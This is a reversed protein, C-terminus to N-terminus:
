KDQGSFDKGSSNTAARGNYVPQSGYSYYPPPPYGYYAYGYPPYWYPYGWGWRPFGGVVFRVNGHWGPHGRWGWGPRGRWGWGAHGQWRNAAPFGGHGRWQANAPAAFALLGAGAFAVIFVRGLKM